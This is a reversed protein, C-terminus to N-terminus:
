LIASAQMEGSKPSSNTPLRDWAMFLPLYVVAVPLLHMGPWPSACLLAQPFSPPTDVRGTAPPDPSAAVRLLLLLPSTCFHTGLDWIEAFALPLEYWVRENGHFGRTGSSHDSGTFKGILLPHNGKADNEAAM